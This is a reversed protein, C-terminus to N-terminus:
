IHSTASRLPAYYRVPHVRARETWNRGVVKAQGVARAHSQSSDRARARASAIAIPASPVACFVPAWISAAALLLSASPSARGVVLWTSISNRLPERSRRGKNRVPAPRGSTASPARDLCPQPRTRTAAPLEFAVRRSAVGIRQVSERAVSPPRGSPEVICDARRRRRRRRSDRTPEALRDM